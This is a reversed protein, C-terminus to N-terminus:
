TLTLQALGSDIGGVGPTDFLTLGALRPDAVTIEVREPREDGGEGLLMPLHTEDGSTMRGDIYHARVSPIESGGIAVYSVTPQVPLLDAQNLLANIISTKGTNPEGVVVINTRSGASTGAGTTLRQLAAGAGVDSLLSHLSERLAALDLNAPATM